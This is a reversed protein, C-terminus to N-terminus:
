RSQLLSKGPAGLGFHTVPHSTAMAALDYIFLMLNIGSEGGSSAWCSSHCRGVGYAPDSVVPAPVLIKHLSGSVVLLPTKPYPHSAQLKLYYSLHNM